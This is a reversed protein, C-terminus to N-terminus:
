WVPVGYSDAIVNYPAGIPPKERETPAFAIWPTVPTGRREVRWVPLDSPACRVNHTASGNVTFTFAQGADLSVDQKLSGEAPPQGDVAVTQGPPISAQVTVPTGRKCRVTYDPVGARYSPSLPPSTRITLRTATAAAAPHGASGCVTVM